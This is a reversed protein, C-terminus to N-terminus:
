SAESWTRAPRATLVAFMMADGLPGGLAFSRTGDRDVPAGFLYATSWLSEFTEADGHIRSAALGFGTASISVGLVM